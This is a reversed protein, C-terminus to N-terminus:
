PRRAPRGGRLAARAWRGRPARVAPPLPAPGRDRRVRCAARAGPREARAGREPRGDRPRVGRQAERPRPLHQAQRPLSRDLVAVVQQQRLAVVQRQQQAGVAPEGAVHCALRESREVTLGLEGAIAQAGRQIGPQAVAAPRLGHGAGEVHVWLRNTVAERAEPLHEAGAEVVRVPAELQLEGQARAGQGSGFLIPGIAPGRSPRTAATVPAEEPMPAAVASASDCAPAPTAIPARRVSRRSTMELFSAPGQRTCSTSTPSSSWAWRNMRVACSSSPPSCMRTFLAPTISSPGTLPASVVSHRRIISTFRSPTKYQVWAANGRISRPPPPSM